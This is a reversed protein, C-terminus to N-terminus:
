EVERMDAFAASIAVVGFEVHFGTVNVVASKIHSATDSVTVSSIVFVPKIGAVERGTLPLTKRIGWPGPIM